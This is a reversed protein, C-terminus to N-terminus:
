LIYIMFKGSVNLLYSIKFAFTVYKNVFFYMQEWVHLDYVFHM